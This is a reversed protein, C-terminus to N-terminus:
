AVAPKRLPAIFLEHLVCATYLPRDHTVRRHSPRSQGERTPNQCAHEAGAHGAKRRGVILRGVILRYDRGHWVVRDGERPAIQGDLLDDFDGTIARFYLEARFRRLSL